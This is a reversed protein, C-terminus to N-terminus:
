TGKLLSNLAGPTFRALFCADSSLGLQFAATYALPDSTAATRRRLSPPLSPAARQRKM